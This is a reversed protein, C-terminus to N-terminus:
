STLVKTRPCDIFPYIDKTALFKVEVITYIKTHSLESRRGM